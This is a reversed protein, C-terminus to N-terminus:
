QADQQSSCLVNDVLVAVRGVEHKGRCPGAANRRQAPFRHRRCPLCCRAFAAQCRSCAVGFIQVDLRVATQIFAQFKYRMRHRQFVMQVFHRPRFHKALRLAHAIQAMRGSGAAQMNMDRAQREATSVLLLFSRNGAQQVEDLFEPRFQQPEAAACLGLHIAPRCPITDAKRRGLLHVM